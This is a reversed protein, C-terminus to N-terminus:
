DVANTTYHNTHENRNHYINPELGPRTFFFDILNTGTNAAKDGLMYM